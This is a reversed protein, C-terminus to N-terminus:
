SRNRRRGKAALDTLGLSLLLATSPEPIAAPTWAAYTEGNWESETSGIIGYSSDTIYDPM